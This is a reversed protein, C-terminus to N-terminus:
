RGSLYAAIRAGEEKTYFSPSKLRMREVEMDWGEFYEGSTKALNLSHCLSCKKKFFLATEARALDDANGPRLAYNAKFYSAIAQAEDVGMNFPNLRRMLEVTEDWDQPLREELDDFSFEHCLRCKKGISAALLAKEAEGSPPPYAWELYMTIKAAEEETFARADRAREKKVIEVWESSAKLKSAAKQTLDAPHCLACKADFLSKGEAIGEPMRKLGGESLLWAAMEEAEAAGGEAAGGLRMMDAVAKRLRPCDGIKVARSAAHASTHCRSCLKKFAARAQEEATDGGQGTSLAAPLLLALTWVAAAGAPAASKLSIFKM